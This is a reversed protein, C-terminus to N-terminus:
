QGLQQNLTFNGDQSLGWIVMDEISAFPIPIAKIDVLINCPLLSVLSHLKYNKSEQDIHNYVKADKDIM